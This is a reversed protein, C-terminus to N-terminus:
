SHSRNPSRTGRARGPRPGRSQPTPSVRGAIWAVYSETPDGKGFPRMVFEYLGLGWLAILATQADERSGAAELAEALTSEFRRTGEALLARLAADGDSEVIMAVFLRMHELRAVSRAVRTLLADAGGDEEGVANRVSAATGDVGRAVVARLLDQRTAFYYTLHSQRVGAREAVTVQSLRQVGSERLIELAADLIRDRVSPARDDKNSPKTRPV